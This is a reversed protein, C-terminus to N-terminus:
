ATDGTDVDGGARMRERARQQQSLRNIQKVYEAMWLRAAPSGLPYRCAQVPAENKDAARIAEQRIRDISVIDNM